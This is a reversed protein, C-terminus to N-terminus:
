RQDPRPIVKLLLEVRTRVGYAEYIKRAHNHVTHQSIKLQIAVQKEMLGEIFLELVRAQQPHLPVPTPLESAMSSRADETDERADLGCVVSPDHSLIMSVNGFCIHQGPFVPVLHVRQQNVWTGNRSGLDTVIVGSETVSIRAHLRSITDRSLCIDNDISHTTELYKRVFFDM